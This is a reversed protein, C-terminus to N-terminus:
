RDYFDIEFPFNYGVKFSKAIPHKPTLIAIIEKNENHLLINSIYVNKIDNGVIANFNSNKSYTEIDKPSFSINTTYNFEKTNCKITGSCKTKYIWNTYSYAKGIELTPKYVIKYFADPISPNFPEASIDSTLSPIAFFTASDRFWYGYVVIESMGIPKGLYLDVNNTLLFDPNNRSVKNFITKIDGLLSTFNLVINGGMGFDSM